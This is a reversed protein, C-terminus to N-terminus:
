LLGRHLIFIGKLHQHFCALVTGDTLNGMSEELDTSLVASIHLAKWNRNAVNTNM